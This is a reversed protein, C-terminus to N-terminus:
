ATGDIVTWLRVPLNHCHCGSDCCTSTSSGSNSGCCQWGYKRRCCRYGILGRASKHPYWFTDSVVIETYSYVFCVYCRSVNRKVLLYNPLLPFGWLQLLLVSRTTSVIYQRRWSTSRNYCVEVLSDILWDILCNKNQLELIPRHFRHQM